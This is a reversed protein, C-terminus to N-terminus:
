SYMRVNEWDNQNLPVHYCSRWQELDETLTEVWSVSLGKPGRWDCLNSDGVKKQNAKQKRRGRQRTMKQSGRSFFPFFPRTRDHISAMLFVHGLWCLMSIQICQSLTNQSSIGLVKNRFKTNSVRDNLSLSLVCVSIILFRPFVIIKM